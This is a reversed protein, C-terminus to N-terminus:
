LIDIASITNEYNAFPEGMGMFVVGSVHGHTEVSSKGSIPDLPVLPFKQNRLLRAFELVQDVIEEATLSRKLGLKGTACFACNMPCGAQTSVCVTNRENRHKM